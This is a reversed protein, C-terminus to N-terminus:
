SAQELSYPLEDLKIVAGNESELCLTGKEASAIEIVALFEYGGQPSAQIDVIKGAGQGSSSDASFIATGPAVIHDSDVSGRYMRRKLKGLYQMRAVVEQGTYCGKKFSVGHLAQMNVMQPVFAEVTEEYISPVAARIDTLKWVHVGAKTTNDAISNWLYIANAADSLILYRQTGPLALVTYIGDDTVSYSSDPLNSCTKSLITSSEPGSVGTLVFENSVDDMEVKSMMIFMKLRKLAAALLSHEMLIYYANDRMIIYFSALLRGKPSCYANLHGHDADLKSIDNTTQGQLFGMADEGQVRIIGLHSLDALITQQDPDVDKTDYHSVLAQNSDFIAGQSELYSKWESNM